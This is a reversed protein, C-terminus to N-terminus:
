THGATLAWESFKDGFMPEAWGTHREGQRAALECIATVKDEAMLETSVAGLGVDRGIKEGRRPNDGALLLNQRVGLGAPTSQWFASRL